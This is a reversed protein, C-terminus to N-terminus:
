VVPASEFIPGQSLCSASTVIDSGQTLRERTEGTRRNVDGWESGREM